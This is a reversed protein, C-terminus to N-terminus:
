DSYNWVIVGEAKNCYQKRILKGIFYCEKFLVRADVFVPRHQWYKMLAGGVDPVGNGAPFLSSQSEAHRENAPPVILLPAICDSVDDRLLRLGDLEGRKMKLVPVYIIKKRSIM